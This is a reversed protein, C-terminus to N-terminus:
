IRRRCGNRFCTAQHDNIVGCSQLFSHVTVPGTFRMGREKMDQSVIQSFRDYPPTDADDRYCHNITQGGTFSWCYEDFGEGPMDSVLLRANDIVAEIKRRNRIIGDDHMLMDVEQPGFAAVATMDFDAFAARFAPRRHLVLSWSLGCQFIELCLMEFLPVSGHKPTGWEEDHYAMMLPDTGQAWDCRALAVQSDRESGM